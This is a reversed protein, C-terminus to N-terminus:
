APGAGKPIGAHRIERVHCPFYGPGHKAAIPEYLSAYDVTVRSLVRELCLCYFDTIRELLDEVMRPKEILAFSAAVMSDWDGVGLMQLLGGGSADVYLVRGEGSLREAREVFNGAYRSPEDPDYYRSFSSPDTLIDAAKRFFPYSRLTLGVSYHPELNFYGAFSAGAPLGERRWQRITEEDPELDFFPFRDAGTGLLTGMFREKQNMGSM